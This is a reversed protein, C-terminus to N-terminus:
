NHELFLRYEIITQWVQNSEEVIPYRKSLRILSLQKYNTLSFESGELLSILYGELLGINSSSESKDYLSFQIYISEFDTGSDFDHTDAYFSYVCYPFTAGQLAKKYYVRSGIATKFSSTSTLKTYIASKTENHATM